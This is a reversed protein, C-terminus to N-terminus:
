SLVDNELNTASKYFFGSPTGCFKSFSGPDSFWDGPGWVLILYNLFGASVMQLRNYVHVVLAFGM